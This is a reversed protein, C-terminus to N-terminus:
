ASTCINSGANGYDSYDLLRVLYRSWFFLIVGSKAVFFSVWDEDFIIYYHNTNTLVIGATALRTPDVTTESLEAVNNVIL